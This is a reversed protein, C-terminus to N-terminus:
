CGQHKKNLYFMSQRNGENNKKIGIHIWSFDNENIVQDYNFKGREIEEWLIRNLQKSGLDVDAALGELHASKSSGGIIDNLKKCRYGSNIHFPFSIRDRIPQLLTTVLCKINEIIEETPTNDINKIKATTSELFESLNFNKSIQIDFENKKKTM